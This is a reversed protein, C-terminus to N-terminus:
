RSHAQIQVLVTPQDTSYLRISGNSYGVVFLNTQAGRLLVDVSMAAWDFSGTIEKITDGSPDWEGGEKPKLFLCSGGGTAMALTKTKPCAAMSVFANEIGNTFGSEKVFSTQGPGVNVRFVM